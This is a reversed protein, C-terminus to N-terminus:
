DITMKSNINDPLSDDTENDSEISLDLKSTFNEEDSSSDYEAYMNLSVKSIDTASQITVESDLKQGKTMVFCHYHFGQGFIEDEVKWHYKPKSYFPM